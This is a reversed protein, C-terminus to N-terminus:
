PVPLIKRRYAVPAQANTLASRAETCRDALEPLSTVRLHARVADKLLPGFIEAHSPFTHTGQPLDKRVHGRADARATVTHNGAGPRDARM